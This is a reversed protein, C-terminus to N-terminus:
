EKPGDIGLRREITKLITELYALALITAWINDKNQAPLQTMQNMTQQLQAVKLEFVAALRNDLAWSGDANQLIVLENLKANYDISKPKRSLQKDRPAEDDVEIFDDMDDDDEIDRKSIRGDLREEEGFSAKEIERDINGSSKRSKKKATRSNQLDYPM